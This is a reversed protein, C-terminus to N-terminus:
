VCPASTSAANYLELRLVQPRLAGNGDGGLRWSESGPRTAFESHIVGRRPVLRTYSAAPRSGPLYAEPGLAGHATKGIWLLDQTENWSVPPTNRQAWCVGLGAQM